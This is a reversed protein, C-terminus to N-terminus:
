DAYALIHFLFFVAEKKWYKGQEADHRKLLSSIFALLIDFM